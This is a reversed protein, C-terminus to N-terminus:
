VIEQGTAPPLNGSCKERGILHRSGQFEERSALHCFPGLGHSRDPRYKRQHLSYMRMHTIFAMPSARTLNLTVSCWTWNMIGMVFGHLYQYPPAPGISSLSSRNIRTAELSHPYLRGPCDRNRRQMQNCGLVSM